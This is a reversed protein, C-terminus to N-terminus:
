HLSLACHSPALCGWPFSLAQGWGTISLYAFLFRILTRHLMALHQKGGLRGMWPFLETSGQRSTSCCKLESTAPSYLQLFRMYDQSGRHLM